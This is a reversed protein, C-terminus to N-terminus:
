VTATLEYLIYRDKHGVKESLGTNHLTYAVKGSLRKGIKGVRRIDKTTFPSPLDYPLLKLMDGPTSITNRGVVGALRTKRVRNRRSKQRTRRERLELTEVFFEREKLLEPIYVLEGFPKLPSPYKRRKRTKSDTKIELVKQIPYVVCVSYGSDLLSRAKDRIKYFDKTQIEYATDDVLVDIRYGDIEQELLGDHCYAYYSKLDRHLKSERIGTLDSTYRTKTM